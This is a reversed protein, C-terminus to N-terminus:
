SINHSFIMGHCNILDEHKIFTLMGQWKSLNYPMSMSHKTHYYDYIKINSEKASEVQFVPQVIVDFCSQSGSEIADFYLVVNDDKVEYRKM